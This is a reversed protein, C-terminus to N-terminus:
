HSPAPANANPTAAAAASPTAPAAEAPPAAAGGPPEPKVDYTQTNYFVKGEKFEASLLDMARDIPIRVVQKEKDIFSYQHLHQEERDHIAKLEQSAVGTYFEQEVHEYSVMYLYYVGVIMVVLLVIISASIAAILGAKAEHRDYDVSPAGAAPVNTAQPNTDAM